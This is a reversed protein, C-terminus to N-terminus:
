LFRRNIIPNILTTFSKIMEFLVDRWLCGDERKNKVWQALCTAPLGDSIAPAIGINLGVGFRLATLSDGCVRFETLCGALKHWSGDDVVIDNPPKIGFKARDGGSAEIAALTAQCPLMQLAEVQTWDVIQWKGPVYVCFALNGRRMVWRRGGQGRFNQGDCAVSVVPLGDGIARIRDLQSSGATDEMILRVAWDCTVDWVIPKEGSLDDYVFDGFVKEPKLDTNQAQMGLCSEIIEASHSLIYM